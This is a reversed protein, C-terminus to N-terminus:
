HALFPMFLLCFLVFMVVLFDELVKLFVLGSEDFCSSIM